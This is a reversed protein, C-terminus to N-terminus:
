APRGPRSLVRQWAALQKTWHRAKRAVQPEQPKLLKALPPMRKMRGLAATNWAATISREDDTRRAQARAKVALDFLRPTLRLFADLDSGLGM